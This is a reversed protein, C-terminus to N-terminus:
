SEHNAEQIHDVADLNAAPVATRARQQRLALEYSRRLLAIAKAVQEPQRIYFSIWGSDPLVHHPEAAGAAVLENRVKTPFPIDVLSDGHIHGIERSALQFEVGGFRHPNVTVGPWTLVTKQIEEQAGRITM